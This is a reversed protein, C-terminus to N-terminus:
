PADESSYWYIWLEVHREQTHTRSIAVSSPVPVLRPQVGFLPSAVRARWGVLGAGGCWRVVRVVAGGACRVSGFWSERKRENSNTKQNARFSLGRVERESERESEGEGEEVNRGHFLVM